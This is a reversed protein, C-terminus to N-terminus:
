LMLREDDVLGETTTDELLTYVLRLTSNVEDDEQPAKTRCFDEANDLLEVLRRFDRTKEPIKLHHNSTLQVRKWFVRVCLDSSVCVSSLLDPVHDTPTVHAFIVCSECVTKSWFKNQHLRTLRSTIDGFNEVKNKDQEVAFALASEQIDELLKENEKRRRKVDPEERSWQSDFLYSPFGPFITPVADPMLRTLKMPVETRGDGDTYKSSTRLYEAKFHRESVQPNKLQSVDIDDRRVDRQWKAKRVPDRPFSFLRVKPGNDYNGKCNSVWCRGM